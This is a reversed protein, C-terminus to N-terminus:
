APTPPPKSQRLPPPYLLPPFFPPAPNFSSRARDCTQCGEDQLFQQDGPPVRIGSGTDISKSWTYSTLYTLGGSFRRQLKAALSNYNAKGFGSVQFVRGFEPWPARAQVSGTPSPDPANFNHWQELRRA